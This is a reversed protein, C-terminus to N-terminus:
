AQIPKIRKQRKKINGAIVYHDILPAMANMFLISLMIGEPYAPNFVRILIAFLGIFFGYIYKGTNTQSATVPDTAMFIVGFAFGGLSLQILPSLSMYENVAFLNFITAMLAGGLFASIIIKRSAVGTIMLFLGSLICLFTSTEGISGPIYGFFASSFLDTYTEGNAMLYNDPKVDTVAQGLITAGTHGDVLTNKGVTSVWVSDGSM